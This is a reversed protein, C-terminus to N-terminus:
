ATREQAFLPGANGIRQRALEVYAPNLEVGIFSRGQKVAVAGTTGSGCFPDLVTDGLRSGALICPEILKEPYTAFHAEPYPQTAVHWVSRKNRTEGHRNDGAGLHAGHGHTTAVKPQKSPDFIRRWAAAGPSDSAKEVIAESDYYYSARKSLLFVQEHAKTPRDTVSEPMPNPKSWIIESRLYWGDAQLAFAVRWPVGCLDKPKLGMARGGLPRPDRQDYKSLDGVYESRDSEYRGNSIYSDGLNLWVTGDDRLVRRVERFVEVLAQVYADPSPELGIQSDVRSAGCKGCINRFQSRSWEANEQNATVGALTSARSITVPLPKAHDCSPDGGDWQATGYDRLGWYPPSTVCTQASGAPLERLRERVDGVLIQWEIVAGGAEGDEGVSM